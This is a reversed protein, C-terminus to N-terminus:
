LKVRRGNCLVTLWDEIKDVPHKSYLQDCEECISKGSARFYGHEELKADMYVALGDLMKADALREDQIEGYGRKAQAKKAKACDHLKRRLYRAQRVTIEITMQIIDTEKM